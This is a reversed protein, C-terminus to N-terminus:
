QNSDSRGSKQSTTPNSPGDADEKRGASAVGASDVRGAKTTYPSNGRTDATSNSHARSPDQEESESTDSPTTTPQDGAVNLETQDGMDTQNGLAPKEQQTDAQGHSTSTQQTASHGPQ